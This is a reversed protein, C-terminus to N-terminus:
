AQLASMTQHERLFNALFLIDQDAAALAPRYLSISPHAPEARLSIAFHVMLKAVM